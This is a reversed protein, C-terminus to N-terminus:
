VFLVRTARDALTYLPTAYVGLVVTGALLVATTLYGTPSLRWRRADGDPQYLYMQKIVQLYYYLSVTSMIVAFTALWLFGGDAAATFLIFKTLFGALLPMGGLSFMGATIVLALYPNTQALGRFGSIEETGTRNYFAIVAMFVALNTVLYGGIHLLLASASVVSVTTIAMLMYGVQGISSYALLRKINRQQLAVLNGLGMTLVAILAVMWQWDPLAPLLPGSFWRLFLALVAAKSTASIYATIPLPAGEYADPTYMHFPVASAKFGLGAVILVLGLILPLTMGGTGAALAGSIETYQTSGAVGYLLSLGYLLMASAVGGLLTYKLAAEGSRPDNRALSVAVYLSFSLVEIAVYATLLDRAAAMYIAGVTSLLILAYFEGIHGIHREVYEHSGVIVVIATATFLVRFFTTYNDITILRAFNRQTDIWLLSVVLAAVLGIVSLWPLIRRGLRLENRFADAGVVLTATIAIIIEPLLLEYQFNLSHGLIDRM